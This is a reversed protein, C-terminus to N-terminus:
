LICSAFWAIAELFCTREGGGLSFGLGFVSRIKLLVKFRMKRRLAEPEGMQSGQWIATNKQSRRHLCVKSLAVVISISSLPHARLDTKLPRSSYCMCGQRTGAAWSPSHLRNLSKHSHCHCPELQFTIPQTQKEFAKSTREAKKHM